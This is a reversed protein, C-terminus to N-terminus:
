STIKLHYQPDIYSSIKGLDNSVTDFDVLLVMATSSCQM